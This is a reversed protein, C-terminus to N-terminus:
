RTTRPQAVCQRMCENWRRQAAPACRAAHQARTAHLAQWLSDKRAPQQRRMSQAAPRLALMPARLCAALSERDAVSPRHAACADLCAPGSRAAPTAQALGGLSVAWAAAWGAIAVAFGQKAVTLRHNTGSPARLELLQRAIPDIM